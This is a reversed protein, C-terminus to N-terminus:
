VSLVEFQVLEPAQFKARRKAAHERGSPKAPRSGNANVTRSGRGCMSSYVLYRDFQLASRVDM